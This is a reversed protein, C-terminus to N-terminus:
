AGCKPERVMASVFADVKRQVEAAEGLQAYPWFRVKVGIARNCALSFFLDCLPKETKVHCEAALSYGPKGDVSKLLLKTDVQGQFRIGFVKEFGPEPAAPELNGPFDARQRETEEAYNSSTGRALLRKINGIDIWM